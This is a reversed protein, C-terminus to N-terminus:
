LEISPRLNMEIIPQAVLIIDFFCEVQAAAM